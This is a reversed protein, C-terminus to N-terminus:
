AALAVPVSLDWSALVNGQTVTVLGKDATVHFEHEILWPGRQSPPLASWMQAYTQDLAVLQVTDPVVPLRDIRDREARLEALRRDHEDDPLDLQALQRIAQKANELEASHDHGHVVDKRLVPTDFTDRMILDVAADVQELRVMLGCSKRASGTGACRYYWFVTKGKGNHLCRHRYMPSNPCNPCTIAGKLMADGEANAAGRKERHKLAENARKFVGRDVLTECLHVAKVRSDTNADYYEMNYFGTYVPNQVIRQVVRPWWGNSEDKKEAGAPVGEDTLWRAIVQVSDGKIVRHFIEPIYKKGWENPVLKKDYKEGVSDFGFPVKGVFKGQRKLEALSAHIRRQASEWEKRAAKAQATWSWFDGEDRPPWQPGDKIILM